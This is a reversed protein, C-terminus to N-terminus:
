QFTKNDATFLPFILLYLWNIDFMIKVSNCGSPQKFRTLQLPIYHFYPATVFDFFSNFFQQCEMVQMQPIKNKCDSLHGLALKCALHLRRHSLPNITSGSRSDLQWHLQGSSPRSKKKKKKGWDATCQDINSASKGSRYKGIGTGLPGERSTYFLNDQRQSFLATAIKHRVRPVFLLILFGVLFTGLNEFVFRVRTM